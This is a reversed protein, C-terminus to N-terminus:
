RPEPSTVDGTVTPRSPANALRQRRYISTVAFTMGMFFWLFNNTFDNTFCLSVQFGIFLSLLGILVARLYDDEMNRVGRYAHRIVRWAIWCTALLGLLGLEAVITAFLTHCERTPIWHPFGEPKYPDLIVPFARWGAGLLPHDRWMGLGAVVFHVRASSSVYATEGFQTLLAFISFLRTLVYEAVPLVSQLALLTVVLGALATLIYRIRLKGSVWLLFVGGAAMAVWNARSFTALLGMIGIGISITLLLRFTRAMRYNLLVAALFLSGAMLFTGLSNPNHFTGAARPTNAGVAIVFSAPLYFEETLMQVVGLISAAGVCVAVSVVVCTVAARTEIMVQTLYLFAALMLMRVFSITAEPQNPSWTLSLAILFLFLALPGFLEFKPFHIRRRLAANAGLSAIMLLFAIHFGTVPIGLPTEQVLRGTIDLSTSAILLPVSLWPYLPLLALWILGVTTGVVALLAVKVNLGLLLLVAAALCQLLIFGGFAAKGIEPLRRRYAVSTM